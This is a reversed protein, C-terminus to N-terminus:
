CTQLTPCHHFDVWWTYTSVLPPPGDPDTATGSFNITDGGSYLAGPAPPTIVPVAPQHTLVPLRAATSRASGSGNTVKCRYQSANDSLAVSAITYSSQTAGSIDSFGGPPVAKQWQYTLPPAGSASVSFTVPQNVGVTQSVPDQTIVPSSSG